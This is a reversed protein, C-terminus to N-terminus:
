QLLDMGDFVSACNEPLQEVITVNRQLMTALSAKNTKRLLGEPTSLAWLLPGLPHRLIDEMLLSHAQAMLVIHGFMSGDAKLIITRGKSKVEKKKYM